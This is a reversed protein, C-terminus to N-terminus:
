PLCTFDERKNCQAEIMLIVIYFQVFLPSSNQSIFTEIDLQLSLLRMKYGFGVAGPGAHFFVMWFFHSLLQREQLM